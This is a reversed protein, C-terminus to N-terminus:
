GDSIPRSEVALRARLREVRLGSARCLDSLQDSTFVKRSAMPNPLFPLLRIPVGAQPGLLLLQGGVILWSRFADFLHGGLGEEVMYHASAVSLVVDYPQDPHYARFDAAAFSINTLGMRRARGKAVSISDHERDM